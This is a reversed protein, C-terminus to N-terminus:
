VTLYIDSPLKTWTRNDTEWTIMFRIVFLEEVVGICEVTKFGKKEYNGGINM